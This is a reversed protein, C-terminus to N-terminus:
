PCIAYPAHFEDIDQDPANHAGGVPEKVLYDVARQMSIGASGKLTEAAKRKAADKYIIVLVQRSIASYFANEAHHYPGPFGAGTCRRVHRGSSVPVV